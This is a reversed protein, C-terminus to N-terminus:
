SVLIYLSLNSNTCHHIIVNCQVYLQFSFLVNCWGSQLKLFMKTAEKRLGETEDTLSDTEFGKRFWAQMDAQTDAIKFLPVTQIKEKTSLIKLRNPRLSEKHAISDLHAQETKKRAETGNLTCIPPM